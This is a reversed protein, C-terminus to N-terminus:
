ELKKGPTCCVKANGHRQEPQERQLSQRAREMVEESIQSVDGWFIPQELERPGYVM